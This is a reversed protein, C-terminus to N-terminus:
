NRPILRVSSMQARMTSWPSSMTVSLWTFARRNSPWSRADLATPSRAQPHTKAALTDPHCKLYFRMLQCIADLTIDDSTDTANNTTNM